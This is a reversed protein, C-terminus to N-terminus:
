PGARELREKLRADDPRRELAEQWTKRAAAQDGLAWQVEGLHLDIEADNGLEAARELYQSRRAHMRGARLLVWGMSDLVAANDPMQALAARSRAGAGGRAPTDRDALTYGLANQVTPTAPGSPSCSACTASRPM